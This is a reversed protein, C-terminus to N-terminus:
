SIEDLFQRAQLLTKRVGDAENNILVERQAMREARAQDEHFRELELDVMEQVRDGEMAMKSRVARYKSLKNFWWTDGLTQTRMAHQLLFVQNFLAPYEGNLVLFDQLTFRRKPDIKMMKLARRARLKEVPNIMEILREFDGASIDGVRAKDTFVYIFRLIEEKGFFCFTGLVRVFDGFEVYGNDDLADLTTFIERALPTAPQKLFEFIDMTTVKGREDKDIRKFIKMFQEVEGETLAMLEIAAQLPNTVIANTQKDLCVRLKENLKQLLDKLNRNKPEAQLMDRVKVIEAMVADANLASSTKTKSIKQMWMVMEALSFVSLDPSLREFGDVSCRVEEQETFTLRLEKVGKSRHQSRKWWLVLNTSPIEMATYRERTLELHYESEVDKHSLCIDTIFMTDDFTMQTWLYIPESGSVLAREMKVFHPLGKDQLHDNEKQFFLMQQVGITVRIEKIAEPRSGVGEKNKERLNRAMRQEEEDMKMANNRRFERAADKLARLNKKAAAAARAFRTKRLREAEARAREEEMLLRDQEAKAEVLQKLRVERLDLLRQLRTRLENELARQRRVFQLEDIYHALFRQYVSRQAAFNSLFSVEEQLHQQYAALYARHLQLTQHKVFLHTHALPKCAPQM